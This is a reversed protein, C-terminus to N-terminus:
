DSVIRFTNSVLTVRRGPLPWEVEDRFRYVGPTIWEFIPQFATATQKPPLALLISICATNPPFRNVTQWDNGTRLELQAFCLNYGVHVDSSNRLFLRVTDSASYATPEVFFHLEAPNQGLPDSCGSGVFLVLLFLNRM